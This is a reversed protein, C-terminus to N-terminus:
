IGLRIIADANENNNKANNESPPGILSRRIFICMNSSGNLNKEFLHAVLLITAAM